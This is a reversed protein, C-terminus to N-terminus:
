GRLESSALTAALQAISLPTQARAINGLIAPDCSVIIYHPEALIAAQRSNVLPSVQIQITLYVNIIKGKPLFVSATTRM